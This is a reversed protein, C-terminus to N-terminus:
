GEERQGNNTKGQLVRIVTVVSPCYYDTVPARLDFGGGVVSVVVDRGAMYFRVGCRRFAFRLLPVLLNRKAWTGVKSYVSDVRGIAMQEVWLPTDNGM